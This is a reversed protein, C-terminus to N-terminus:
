VPNLFIYLMKSLLGNLVTTEIELDRTKTEINRFFFYFTKQDASDLFLAITTEINEVPFM